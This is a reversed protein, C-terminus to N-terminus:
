PLRRRSLRGFQRLDAQLSATMNLFLVLTLPSTSHSSTATHTIRIWVLTIVINPEGRNFPYICAGNPSMHTPRAHRMVPRWVLMHCALRRITATPLMKVATSPMITLILAVSIDRPVLCPSRQTFRNALRKKVRRYSVPIISWYRRQCIRM